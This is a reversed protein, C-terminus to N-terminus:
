RHVPIGDIVMLDPLEFQMHSALVAVEYGAKQLAPLYYSMGVQVGGIVPLYCDTWILIRMVSQKKVKGTAKTEQTSDMRQQKRMSQLLRLFEERSENGTQRTSNHLHLRRSVLVDGILEDIIKAKKARMFWEASDSHRLTANLLGIQEFVSRRVMATPMVYGPLPQARGENRYQKREEAVEDMWFNQIHTVSIGLEPRAWFREIQRATKESYWLDDADLFTIMHGSAVRMGANRASGTGQNKQSLVQIRGKNQAMLEEALAGTGDTSGDDVIIVEHVPYSQALISEVAEALFRECNYAPIICSVQYAVDTTSQDEVDPTM